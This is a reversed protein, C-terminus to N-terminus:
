IPTENVGLLMQYVTPLDPIQIEGSVRFELPM